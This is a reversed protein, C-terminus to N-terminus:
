NEVSNFSSVMLADREARRFLTHDEATRSEEEDNDADGGDGSSSDTSEDNNASGDESQQYEFDDSSLSHDSGADVPTVQPLISSSRSRTPRKSM